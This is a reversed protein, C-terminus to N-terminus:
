PRDVPPGRRGPTPPPVELRVAPPVSTTRTVRMGMERALSDEAAAYALSADGHFARTYPSAAYRSDLLALISDRRDPLLALAAIWPVLNIVILIVQVTEHTKLLLDLGVASKLTWYLGAVITSLFPPKSSYFHDRFRGKDITDWGPEQIIEDIHYTGREVLSWAIEQMTAVRRTKRPPLYEGNSVPDFHLPLSM